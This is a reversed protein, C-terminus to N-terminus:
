VGWWQLKVNNSGSTEVQTLLPANFDEFHRLPHATGMAISQQSFPSELPGWSYWCRGRSSSGRDTPTQRIRVSGKEWARCFVASFLWVDFRLVQLNSSRVRVCCLLETPLLHPTNFLLPGVFPLLLLEPCVCGHCDGDASYVCAFRCNFKHNGSQVECGDFSVVNLAFTSTSLFGALLSHKSCIVTEIYDLNICCLNKLCSTFVCCQHTWWRESNAWFHFM